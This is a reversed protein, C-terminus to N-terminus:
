SECSICASGDAIHIRPKTVAPADKVEPLDFDYENKTETEM